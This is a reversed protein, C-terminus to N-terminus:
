RPAEVKVADPEATLVDPVQLARTEPNPERAVIRQHEDLTIARKEGSVVKPWHLWSMALAFNHIRRLHVNTSVTGAELVRLFQEAQTALVVVSRLADLARDRVATTWRERTHGIKSRVIEDM